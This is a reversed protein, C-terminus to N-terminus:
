ETEQDSNKEPSDGSPKMGRVRMRLKIADAIIKDKATGVLGSRFMIDWETRDISFDNSTAVVNEENV